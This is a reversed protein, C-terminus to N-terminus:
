DGILLPQMENRRIDVTLSHQVVKDETHFKLIFIPFSALVSSVKPRTNLREQSSLYELLKRRAVMCADSQTYVM